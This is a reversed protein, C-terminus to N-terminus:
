FYKAFKKGLLLSFDALTKTCLTGSGLQTGLICAVHPTWCAVFILAAGVLLNALRRRSRLTSTQPLPLEPGHRADNAKKSRQRRRM